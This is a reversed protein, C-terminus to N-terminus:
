PPKEPCYGMRGGLGSGEGSSDFVLHLGREAMPDSPSLVSYKRLGDHISLCFSWNTQFWLNLSLDPNIGNLAAGSRGDVVSFMSRDTSGGLLRSITYVQPLNWGLAQYNDFADTSASMLGGLKSCGSNGPKNPNCVQYQDVCVMLSVETSALWMPESFNTGSVSGNYAILATIWPDYSPQLYGISNQGLMMITIDGDTQNIRPDPIWSQSGTAALAGSPDSKAFLASLTYGVRNIRPIPSHRFTYNAFETGMFYQGGAYIYVTEGTDSDNQLAALNSGHKIPACTAVRRFKIRHSPPANIGFHEASDLLGTDMQFASHGNYACLDAAYPCSANPNTTFPLSQSVHPTCAFGSANGQYCQHAYTAADYTDLLNKSTYSGGTDTANFEFGGCSPGLVIVSNGAAKTIYSTLLGSAGFLLINLIALAALPLSRGMAKARSPTHGIAFPLKILAWAAAGAGKNRIIVQRQAHLADQGQSPDTTYAQHITFSLISWFMTGSFSVLIALFATLVGANRQTLTLTAGRVLGDSWNIWVGTYTHIADSM